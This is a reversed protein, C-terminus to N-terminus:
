VLPAQRGQDVPERSALPGGSRALVRRARDVVPKDVMEGDVVAVGPSLSSALVARAWAVQTETPRLAEAVLPVQRPHICLRAEFGMRRAHGTEEVLLADDSVAGTVGDIPPSIGAAASALVLASRAAQLAIRDTPEVGLQAALDFSGFALRSVGPSAAVAPAALIGAATEVLAILPTSAPLAAAIRALSSPDEAKPVMVVCEHGAVMALDDDCWPTGVANIRVVCRGGRSLEAAVQARAASKDEPAVADELDLVVLDAGSAAAKAFREPRDGPVFLLTRAASLDDHLTM